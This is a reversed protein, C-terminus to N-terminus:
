KDLGVRRARRRGNGLVEEVDEDDHLAEMRDFLMRFECVM